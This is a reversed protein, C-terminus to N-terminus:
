SLGRVNVQVYTDNWVCWSRTQRTGADSPLNTTGARKMADPPRRLFGLSGDGDVVQQTVVHDGGEHLYSQPNFGGGNAAMKVQGSATTLCVHWVFRGLIRTQVHTPPLRSMEATLVLKGGRSKCM